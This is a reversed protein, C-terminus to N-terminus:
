AHRPKSVKGGIEAAGVPVAARIQLAQRGPPDKALVLLINPVLALVFVLESFQALFQILFPPLVPLGLSAVLL